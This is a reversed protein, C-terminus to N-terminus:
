KSHFQPKVALVSLPCITRFLKEGVLVFVDRVSSVSGGPSRLQIFVFYCILLTSEFVHGLLKWCTYFLAASSMGPVSANLNREESHSKAVLVVLGVLAVLVLTLEFSLPALAAAGGWKEFLRGFM